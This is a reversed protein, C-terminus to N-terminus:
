GLLGLIGGEAELRYHGPTSYAVNKRRMVEFLRAQSVPDLLLVLAAVWEETPAQLEEGNRLRIRLNAM